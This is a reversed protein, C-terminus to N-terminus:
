RRSSNTGFSKPDSVRTKGDRIAFYFSLKGRLQVPHGEATLQGFRWQKVASIASRGIDEDPAEILSVDTVYGDANVDVMVVALGQSQRKKSPSPYAPRVITKAVKRLVGEPVRAVNQAVVMRSATPFSGALMLFCILLGKALLFM